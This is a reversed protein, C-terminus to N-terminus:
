TNTITENEIRKILNIVDADTLGIEGDIVYLNQHGGNFLETMDDIALWPGSYNNADLWNQIELDRRGYHGAAELNPTIGIFRNELDEGGGYTVFEVLEDFKYSDRWSTSFVVEVTPCARLIQWLLEVHCFLDKDPGAPHTVGDFDIFALM